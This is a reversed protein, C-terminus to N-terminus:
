SVADGDSDAIWTLLGSGASAGAHVDFSKERKEQEHKWHDGHRHESHRWRVCSRARGGYPLSDVLGAREDLEFASRKCGVFLGSRGFALLDVERAVAHLGMSSLERCQPVVELLPEPLVSRPGPYRAFEIHGEIDDGNLEVAGSEGSNARRRLDQVGFVLSEVM